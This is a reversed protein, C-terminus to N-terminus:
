AGFLAVCRGRGTRRQLTGPGDQPVGVISQDVGGHKSDAAREPEALDGVIIRADVLVIHFGEERGQAVPGAPALTTLTATTDCPM